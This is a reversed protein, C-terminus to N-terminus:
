YAELRLLTWCTMAMLKLDLTLSWNNIYWLDREVRREM